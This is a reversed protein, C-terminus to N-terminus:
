HVNPPWTVHFVETRFSFVFAAESINLKGSSGRTPRYGINRLGPRLDRGSGANQTGDRCRRRDRAPCRLPTAGVQAIRTRRRQTARAGTGDPDLLWAATRDRTRRALTADDDIEPRAVVRSSAAPSRRMPNSVGRGSGVFQPKKDGGM